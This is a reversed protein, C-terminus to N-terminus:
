SIKMIEEYLHIHKNKCIETSYLERYRAFFFEKDRKLMQRDHALAKLYAIAKEPEGENFVNEAKGIVEQLGGVNTSMVCCKRSMAEVAVKGFSEFSSTMLFVDISDYFSVMEVQSLDRYAQFSEKGISEEMSKEIETAIKEDESNFCSTVLKVRLPLKAEKALAALKVALPWNKESCIRGAFGIVIDETEEQANKEREFVSDVTNSIVSIRQADVDKKWLNKNYLTTTVLAAAEKLVHKMLLKSHIRYGSYLGRDTFILKAGIADRDKKRLLGYTILSEPMQAHIIDPKMQLLIKRFARRRKILNVIRNEGMPYTVIEISDNNKGHLLEPCIVVPVILYEGLSCDSLLECISKTSQQAGGPLDLPYELLYAIKIWKEESM